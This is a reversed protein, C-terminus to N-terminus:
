GCLRGRDHSCRMGGCAQAGMRPEDRRQGSKQLWQRPIRDFITLDEGHYFRRSPSDPAEFSVTLTDWGRQRLAASLYKFHYYGNNLFLASRRKPEAPMWSPLAEPEDFPIMRDNRSWAVASAVFDILGPTRSLLDLVEFYYAGTARARELPPDKLRFWKRLNPLFMHGALSALFSADVLPGLSGQEDLIRVYVRRVRRKLIDRYIEYPSQSRLPIAAAADPHAILLLIEDTKRRALFIVPTVSQEHWRLLKHLAHQYDTASGLKEV